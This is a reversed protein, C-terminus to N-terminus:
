KWLMVLIYEKFSNFNLNQHRSNSESNCMNLKTKIPWKKRKKLGGFLVPFLNDLYSNALKLHLM